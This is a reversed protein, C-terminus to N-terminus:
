AVVGQEHLAEFAEEDLGLIKGLIERSGEGFDPAPGIPRPSFGEGTDIRWPLAPLYGEGLESQVVRQVFGDGILQDDALVDEATRAPAAAVGAEQLIKALDTPDWTRTAEGVLDDLELRNEWRKAMTDFRSDSSLPELGLVRTIEQWQADDFAAIAIWRDRGAAPYCGHPAFGEQENGRRPVEEGFLQAHLVPEPTVAIMAEAMAVDIFRGVGTTEREHLAALISPVAMLGSVVDGYTMFTQEPSGGPYGTSACTGAYAHMPPAMAQFPAFAGHYGYGTVTAMVIRPNIERLTAYGLNFQELIGPRFNAVVVDSQEVLECVLRQGEPTAIDICCSRKMLNTVVFIPSNNLTESVGAKLMSSRFPDPRKPSEIRIVEAGLSALWLTTQTGAVFQTFDIVRVGELPLNAASVV